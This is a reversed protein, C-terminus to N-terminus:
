APERQVFRRSRWVACLWFAFGGVAGSILGYAITVVLDRPLLGKDLFAAVAVGIGPAAGIVSGTAVVNRRTPRVRHRVAFYVPLALYLTVYGALMSMFGTLPGLPWADDPTLTASLLAFACGAALPALLFGLVARAPHPQPARRTTAM